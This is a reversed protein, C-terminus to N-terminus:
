VTAEKLRATLRPEVGVEAFKENSELTILEGDSPLAKALRFHDADCRCAEIWRGFARIVLSLEM